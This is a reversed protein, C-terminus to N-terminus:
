ELNKKKWLKVIREGFYGTLFIGFVVYFETIPKIFALIISVFLFIGLFVDPRFYNITQNVFRQIKNRIPITPKKLLTLPM